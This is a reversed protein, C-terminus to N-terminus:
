MWARYCEPQMQPLKRIIRDAENELLAHPGRKKRDTINGKEDITFLMNVRGQIGQEIAEAPYNFNKRIHRHLQQNFCDRPDETDECGPFVPVYEGLGFPVPDKTSKFPSM